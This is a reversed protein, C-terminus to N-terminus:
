GLVQRTWFHFTIKEKKLFSFFFGFPLKGFMKGTTKSNGQGILQFELKNQFAIVMGQASSSYEVQLLPQFSKPQNSSELWWFRNRESNRWSGESIDLHVNINKLFDKWINREEVAKLLLNFFFGLGMFVTFCWGWFLLM